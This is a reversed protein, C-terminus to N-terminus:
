RGEQQNIIQALYQSYKVAGKINLHLEDYYLDNTNLVNQPDIVSLHQYKRKLEAVFDGIAKNYQCQGAQKAWSPPASPVVYFVGVNNIRCLELIKEMRERYELLWTYQDDKSKAGIHQNKSM